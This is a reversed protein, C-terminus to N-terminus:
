VYNLEQGAANVPKKGDGKDQNKNEWMLITHYHSKYKDGKAAIYLSLRKIRADAGSKGFQSCLKEYEAPFLSVNDHYKQKQPKPDPKDKLSGEVSATDTVSATVSYLIGELLGKTLGEPLAELIAKFDQILSNKPLSQVIKKAAKQQNPNTIPNHKFYKLILIVQAQKDYKVLGKEILNDLSKHFSKSTIKLDDLVYGEKLVYFGILNSHPCTLVYLFLRQDEIPLAIFKEDNWIQTFIKQYRM